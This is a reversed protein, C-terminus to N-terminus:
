VGYHAEILNHLRMASEMAARVRDSSSSAPRLKLFQDWSQVAATMDGRRASTYAMELHVDPNLPDADAARRLEDVSDAVRGLRVLARAALLRALASGPDAALAARAEGLAEDVRGAALAVAGRQLFPTPDEVRAPGAAKEPNSLGVVGTSVLGYMIKAVDFDSQGLSGAIVRLDKTGDILSLVAWENPLLDLLTPHNDDVPALVPVVALSPVKDAIRSWEDIRRAGEMLLSETSVRVTAGAPVENADRENFSFFGERWSMLEFVVGEIQQRLQRELERPTIAGLETLVEGLKANGGRGRQTDRATALEAETIKGARVLLTGLPQPQSRMSAHIVRGNDFYVTGENDRLESTVRLTGTKRSLDLLQFVDHIGLERLPGEIAM